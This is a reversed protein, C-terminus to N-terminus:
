SSGGRWFYAGIEDEEVEVMRYGLDRDRPVAYERQSLDNLLIANMSSGKERVCNLAAETDADTAQARWTSRQNFVRRFGKVRVRTACVFGTDLFPLLEDPFLLSGYGVLGVSPGRDGSTKEM